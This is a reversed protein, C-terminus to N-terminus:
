KGKTPFTIKKGVVLNVDSKKDNKDNKNRNKRKYILYSDWYIRDDLVHESIKEVVIDRNISDVNYLYSLFINQINSFDISNKFIRIGHLEKAAIFLNQIRVLKALDMLKDYINKM